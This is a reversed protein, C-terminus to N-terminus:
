VGDAVLAQIRGELEAIQKELQLYAAFRQELRAETAALESEYQKSEAVAVRVKEEAQQKAAPSASAAQASLLLATQFKSRALERKSAVLTRLHKVEEWLLQQEQQLSQQELLLQKLKVGRNSGCGTAAVCALLCFGSVVYTATNCTPTTM